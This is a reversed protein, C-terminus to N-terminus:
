KSCDLGGLINKIMAEQDSLAEKVQALKAEDERKMEATPYKQRIQSAFSKTFGPLNVIANEIAKPEYFSLACDGLMRSMETRGVTVRTFNSDMVAFENLQLSGTPYLHEFDILESGLAQFLRNLMEIDMWSTKENKEEFTLCRSTMKWLEEAVYKRDSSHLVNKLCTLIDGLWNNELKLWFNGELAPYESFDDPHAMIHISKMNLIDEEDRVRNLIQLRGHIADRFDHEIKAKRMRVVRFAKLIADDFM